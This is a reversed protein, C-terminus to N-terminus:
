PTEVLPKLNEEYMIGQITQGVDSSWDTALEAMVQNTSTITVGANRMREIAATDAAQTPSGGADVVVQVDYGEEFASIAPYVICVDNTLGAMILRKRGTAEVAGKFPEYMWADVVGPRKIRAEYAEPAIHQIDDLLLGQFHDEQSSTLVLPMGTEAATRALARTNAVLERHDINQALKITGRQHDILLMAADKTTFANKM